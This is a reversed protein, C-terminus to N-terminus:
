KSPVFETLIQPIALFHQDNTLVRSGHQMASAAIWVDNTPLPNGQKRLYHQIEAFREATEHDVSILKVSPQAIFESLLALNGSEQSGGRFGFRLEGIVVPSLM